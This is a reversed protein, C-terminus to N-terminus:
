GVNGGGSKAMAKNYVFAVIAMLLLLVYSMASAYGANWDTFGKEYIYQVLPRTSTGPGGGTMLFPQGFLKFSAIIQLLVIMMTINKLSPLTIYLLQQFKSAGDISSAEYLSDPIEQLGAIFLIMNFGVTWWVTAVVITTWALSTTDFWFVQDSVFGFKILYNNLLGIYPKFIYVWISTIVSISLIYPLFAAIKMVKAAKFTSNAILAFVLGFFVILPTSILVFIITNGLAEYFYSDKFIHVYNSIGAFKQPLGFRGSHVSMIIGQVLPFLTFVSYLLMFPLLFLGATKWSTYSSVIKNNKM